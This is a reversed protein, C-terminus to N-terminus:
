SGRGRYIEDRFANWGARAFEKTLGGGGVTVLPPLIRAKEHAQRLVLRLGQETLARLTTNQRRAVEQARELLDDAIEVTTKMIHTGMNAYGAPWILGIGPLTLRWRSLSFQRLRPCRGGDLVAVSPAGFLCVLSVALHRPLKLVRELMQLGM